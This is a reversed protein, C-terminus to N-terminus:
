VRLVLDFSEDDFTLARLDEHRVGDRVEGPQMNDFYYSRVYNPLKTFYKIFPGRFSAEYVAVDKMWPLVVLKALSTAIGRGFQDVVINAQDRFRMSCRCEACPYEERISTSGVAQFEQVAGCVAYIGRFPSFHDSM